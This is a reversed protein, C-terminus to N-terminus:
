SSFYSLSKNAGKLLTMAEEVLTELCGQILVQLRLRNRSSELCIQSFSKGFPLM